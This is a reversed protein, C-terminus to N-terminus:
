ATTRLRRWLGAVRQALESPSGSNDIVLDAVALRQERSAQARLRAHAHDADMGDRAMVRELQTAPDVDVVVVLDFLEQQGTEVLLPIVHVVVADPEAAREAAAALERVRPHVIANLRARADPDAFVIDGLAARDLEGEATLVAPGFERAIAALGPTGPEVARRALLDADIVQAGHGALLDAVASKGSGIGGTLGIRLV